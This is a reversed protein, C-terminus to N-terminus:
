KGEQEPQQVKELENIRSQLNEIATEYKDQLEQLQIAHLEEIILFADSVSRVYRYSM